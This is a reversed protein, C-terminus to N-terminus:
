PRDKIILATAEGGDLFAIDLGNDALGQMRSEMIGRFRGGPATSFVRVFALRYRANLRSRVMSFFPDHSFGSYGIEPLCGYVFSHLHPCIDSPSDSLTMVDLLNSVPGPVSCDAELLFYRLSPTSKLLPIVAEPTRCGELVLTALACSSRHIFPLLTDVAGLTFLAELLPATLHNLLYDTEVYLRRLHPFTIMRADDTEDEDCAIGCKILNPLNELIDLQRGLSYVGRYRTLQRWPIALVPSYEALDPGTLLVERLDPATSFIDSVDSDEKPPVRDTDAFEVRQLRTLRGKVPQLLDLLVGTHPNVRISSWRECHLVLLDLLLSDGPITQDWDFDLVLPTNASRLLQTEIMALPFTNQHPHRLSHLISISNWLLPNGLATERWSRCIQGLHWPPQAVTNGGIKPLCSDPAGNSVSWKEDREEILQDMTARLADIRANLADERLQSFTVAQRISAIQSDLPPENSALLHSLDIPARTEPLEDAGTPPAGCKWCRHSM